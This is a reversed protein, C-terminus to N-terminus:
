PKRYVTFDPNRYLLPWAYARGTGTVFYDARYTEMLVQARVETLNTYAAALANRAEYGRVPWPEPFGGLDTMKRYWAPLGGSLVVQKFTGVMPRRALWPFSEAEWPPVLFVAQEPTHGRIWACTEAWRHSRGPGCEAVAQLRPVALALNRAQVGFWALAPLWAVLALRRTWPPGRRGLEVVVRALALVTILPVMVDAYRFWYYQLWRGDHDFRAVLLGALFPVLAAGAYLILRQVARSETVRYVAALLVVSILPRWWWGGPWCAPDLHHPARLFVYIASAPPAGPDPVGALLSTGALHQVAPAVALASLGLWLVVAQGATGLAPRADRRMLWGTFVTAATAQLGVLVHFSVSLGLLAAMTRWPPRAALLGGLALLALGYSFVKPEFGPLIWEGAVLSPQGAWVLVAVLGALLPLELRRFLLALGAALLAYGALRGVLSTVYFGGHHLLPGVLWRFLLQRDGAELGRGAAGPLWGPDLALRADMLKTLENGTLNGDCLFRVALVLLIVLAYWWGKRGVLRVMRDSMLRSPYLM